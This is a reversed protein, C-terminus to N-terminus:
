CTTFIGKRLSLPQSSNTLVTTGQKTTLDLKHRPLMFKVTLAIPEGDIFYPLRTIGNAKM